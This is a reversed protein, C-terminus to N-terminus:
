DVSIYKQHDKKVVGTRKEIISEKLYRKVGHYNSANLKM